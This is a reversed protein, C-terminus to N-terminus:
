NCKNIMKENIEKGWSPSYSNTATFKEFKQKALEFLPKAKKAGGGLFEPTYFVNQGNMFYIRPNEPNMQKAKALEGNSLQSYKGGRTMFSVQIRASLAWAKLVLIESEKEDIKLAKSILEDAKDLLQDKKDNDKIAYTINVLSYAEYYLPLWKTKEVNAIRDFKNVAMQLSDATHAKQLFQFAENMVVDYDANQGFCVLSVIGLVYTLFVKKM